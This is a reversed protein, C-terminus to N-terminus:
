YILSRVTELAYTTISPPETRVAGLASRSGDKAGLKQAARLMMEAYVPVNCLWHQMMNSRVLEAIYKRELNRDAKSKIAFKTKIEESVKNSLEKLLLPKLFPNNTKERGASTSYTGGHRMLWVVEEFAEIPQAGKEIRRAALELIEDALEHSVFRNGDLPVPRHLDPYSFTTKGSLSVSPCEVCLFTKERNLMSQLSIPYLRCIFPKKEHITCGKDKFFICDGNESRRIHAAGSKHQIFHEPEFGLSLVKEIDEDFLEVLNYHQCCMGCRSCKFTGNVTHKPM